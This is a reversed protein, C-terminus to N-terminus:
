AGYGALANQIANFLRSSSATVGTTNFDTPIDTLALFEQVDYGRYAELLSVYGADWLDIYDEHDSVVGEPELDIASISGEEVYVIVNMLYEGFEPHDPIVSAFSGENVEVDKVADKLANALRISSSTVSVINLDTPLALTNLGQIGQISLAQYSELLSVIQNNWQTRWPGSTTVTGSVDIAQIRYFEDVHVNVSITDEHYEADTCNDDTDLCNGSTANGILTKFYTVPESSSGHTSSSVSSESSSTSNLSAIVLSGNIGFSAFATAGIMGWKGLLNQNILGTALKDITPSVINVLAISYAVAEPSPTQFRILVVLFGAIVGILSKGFNSTPSTVPDTLMFSGGFAISGSSMFIISFVWPDVGGLSGMVLTTLFITTYFFVTPRWNHVNMFTLVTGLGLILLTPTEGISGSYFGLLLDNLSVNFGQMSDVLWGQSNLASTITAGVDNLTPVMLFNDGPLFTKLDAAFAIGVFLRGFIAPNFINAGFGGFAYKVLLTSFLAGTIVAYMPTGVPIILAFLTATVYSYNGNIVKIIHTMLHGITPQYRLLAVLIDALLTTVHSVLMIVFIALAYRPGLVVGQYVMAFMWIVSLAITYSLMDRKVRSKKDRLFPGPTNVFKM